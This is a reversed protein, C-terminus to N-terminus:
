QGEANVLLGVLVLRMAFSVGWILLVLIRCEWFDKNFVVMLGIWWVILAFWNAYPLLYIITMILLLLASKAAFSGLSGFDFPEFLLNYVTLVIVWLVALAIFTLPFAILYYM